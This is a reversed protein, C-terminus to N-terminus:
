QTERYRTLARDIFVDVSGLYATDVGAELVGREVLADREAFLEGTM